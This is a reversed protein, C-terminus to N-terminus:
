CLELAVATYLYNNLIIIYDVFHHLFLLMIYFRHRGQANETKKRNITSEVTCCNMCWYYKLRHVQFESSVKAHSKMVDSRM